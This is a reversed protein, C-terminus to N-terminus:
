FGRPRSNRVIREGLDALDAGTMDPWGHLPKQWEQPVASEGWRAGLLAGAIAAVTDTDGGLKVAQRLGEYVAGEGFLDLTSRVAFWACQLASVTYGNSRPDIIGNDADALIQEWADRSSELILDMGARIDLEGDLVAVRMAEAWLVCSEQVVQDPHTLTAIDRAARATSERDWLFSIGIPAIRMLAGNGASRNTYANYEQAAARLRDSVDGTGAAAETLVARTQIGVDTAGDHLWNLFNEGIEDHAADTTLPLGFDAVKAICIAMQTDDTWEGPQYPGLGGGIMQPDETPPAFEYPAGLADGCASALLAGRARDIMLPTLEFDEM